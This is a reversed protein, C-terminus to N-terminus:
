LSVCLLIVEVKVNQKSAGINCFDYKCFEVILVKFNYFSGQMKRNHQTMKSEFTRTHQM